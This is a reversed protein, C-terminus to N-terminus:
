PHPYEPSAVKGNDIRYASVPLEEPASDPDHPILEESGDKYVKLIGERTQFIDRIPREEEVM